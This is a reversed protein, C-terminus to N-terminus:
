VGEKVEFNKVIEKITLALKIIPQKLLMAFTALLEDKSPLLALELMQQMGLVNNDYVGAKIQLSTHKQSFKASLRAPSLQDGYAFIFANPGVLYKELKLYQTQKLAMNFLNNKYVKLEADVNKLSRRLFQLDAVTLKAYGVVVLSSSKNLKMSIENIINNKQVLIEKM